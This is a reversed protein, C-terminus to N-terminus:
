ARELDIKITVAHQLEVPLESRIEAVLGEELASPVSESKTVLRVDIELGTVSVERLWVLPRALAAKEVIGFVRDAWDWTVSV